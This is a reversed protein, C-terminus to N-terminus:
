EVASPEQQGSEGRSRGARAVSFYRKSVRRSLSCSLPFSKWKRVNESFSIEYHQKRHIPQSIKGTFSFLWVFVSPHCVIPM